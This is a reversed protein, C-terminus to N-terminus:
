AKMKEADYAMQADAEDYADARAEVIVFHDTLFDAAAMEVNAFGDEKGHGETADFKLYAILMKLKDANPSETM